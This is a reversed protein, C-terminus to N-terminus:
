IELGIRRWVEGTDECLKIFDENDLNECVFDNIIAQREDTSAESYGPRQWIEQPPPRHKHRSVFSETDSMFTDLPHQMADGIVNSHLREMGATHNRGSLTQTQTAKDVKGTVKKSSPLIDPETENQRKRSATNM